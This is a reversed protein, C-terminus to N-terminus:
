AQVVKSLLLRQAESVVFRANKKRHLCRLVVSTPRNQLQVRIRRDETPGRRSVKRHSFRFTCCNVRIRSVHVIHPAGVFALLHRIPNLEAKLPNIHHRKCITLNLRRLGQWDKDPATYTTHSYFLRISNNETEMYLQCCHATHQIPM